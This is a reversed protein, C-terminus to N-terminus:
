VYSEKSKSQPKQDFITKHEWSWCNEVVFERLWEGKATTKSKTFRALGNMCDKSWEGDYVDGSDHTMKGQGVRDGRMHKSKETKETHGVFHGPHTGDHRM